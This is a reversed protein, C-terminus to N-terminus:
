YPNPPDLRALNANTWEWVRRYLAALRPDRAAAVTASMQRQYQLTCAVFSALFEQVGEFGHGVLEGRPSAAALYRSEDAVDFGRIDGTREPDGIRFRHHLEVWLENIVPDRSLARAAQERSPPHYNSMHPIPGLEVRGSAADGLLGTATADAHAPTPQSSLIMNGAAHAFAHTLEHYVVDRQEEPSRGVYGPIRVERVDTEYQGGARDLDKVLTLPQGRQAPPRRRLLELAAELELETFEAGRETVGVGLARIERRLRQENASQPAPAAPGTVFAPDRLTGAQAMRQAGNLYTVVVTGDPEVALDRLRGHLRWVERGTAEAVVTVGHAGDVFLSVPGGEVHYRNGRRVLGAPRAGREIELGQPLREAAPPPPHSSLM